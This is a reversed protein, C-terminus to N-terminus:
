AATRSGDTGHFRRLRVRGVPAELQRGRCVGIGQPDGTDAMPARM